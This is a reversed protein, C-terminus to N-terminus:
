DEEGLLEQKRDKLGQISTIAQKKKGLKAHVKAMLKPKKKHEEARLLDNMAGEVEYDDPEDRKLDKPDGPEAIPPAVKKSM